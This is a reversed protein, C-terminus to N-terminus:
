DTWFNATIKRFDLWKWEKRLHLETNEM